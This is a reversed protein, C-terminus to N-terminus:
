ETVRRWFSSSFRPDIFATFEEWRPCSLRFMEAPMRADKAPYLRGGCDRVVADLEAFLKHTRDGLNPFDLALTAGATPFSLMGRSPIDGFMKLVALFSGTGSGSIRELLADIGARSTEPPLVCQYQYFGRRGYVRNWERVGDLPYFFPVHHQLAIGKPLPRHYYAVNFANLSLSNILSFPPDFPFTPARETHGPLDAQPPAHRGVMFIGRGRQRGSAVCDVWSVTYPYEADVAADQAWFGDLNRFRINEVVMFPNAVPVLQIEAWTILGTLGLGGITANLWDANQEPTCELRQGDSRLLELRTVHHGFNGMVHHNKGHVDNAIAGGLTVYRTGPTVPLFWGQPLVLDLIDKLSVGAEARLRGTARDFAIYHDMARTRLLTGGENLCVDGYSRGLGHALLTHEGAPLDAHRNSWDIVREHEVRPLRNWSTASM